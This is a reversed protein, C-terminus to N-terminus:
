TSILFMISSNKFLKKKCIRLFIMELFGQTYVIYNVTTLLLLTDPILGIDVERILMLLSVWYDVLHMQIIPLLTSLRLGIDVEEMMM